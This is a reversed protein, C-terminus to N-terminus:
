DESPNPAPDEHVTILRLLRSLQEVQADSLPSLLETEQEVIRDLARDTAKRGRATLSVHVNRSDSGSRERRIFDQGELRILRGTVGARTLLCRDAIESPLLAVGARRLASLVEYDGLVAFGSADLSQDLAARLLNSLRMVRMGVAFRSLDLKRLREWSEVAEDTYDRGDETM